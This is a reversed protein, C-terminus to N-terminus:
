GILVHKMLKNSNAEFGGKLWKKDCILTLHHKGKVMKRGVSFRGM